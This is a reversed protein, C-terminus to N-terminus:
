KFPIHNEHLAMSAESSGGGCEADAPPPLGGGAALSPRGRRVHVILLLSKLAIHPRALVHRSLPPFLLGQCSSPLIEQNSHDRLATQRNNRQLLRADLWNFPPSPARPKDTLPCRNRHEQDQVTSGPRTFHLRPAITPPLRLRTFYLVVNPSAQLCFASTDRCCCTVVVFTSTTIACPHCLSLRPRDPSRDSCLPCRPGHNPAM